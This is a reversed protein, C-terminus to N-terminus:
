DKLLKSVGMIARIRFPPFPPATNPDTLKVIGALKLGPHIPAVNEDVM